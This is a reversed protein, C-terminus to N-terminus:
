HALFEMVQMRKMVVKYWDEQLKHAEHLNLQLYGPEDRRGRKSGAWVASSGLVGMASGLDSGGFHKAVDVHGAEALAMGVTIIGGKDETKPRM